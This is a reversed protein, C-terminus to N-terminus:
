RLLPVSVSVAVMVQEPYGPWALPDLRVPLTGEFSWDLPTVQHSASLGPLLGHAATLATVEHGAAHFQQCLNWLYVATGAKVLRDDFGSFEFHCEIINM